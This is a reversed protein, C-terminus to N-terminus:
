LMKGVLGVIEEKKKESEEFIARAEADVKSTFVKDSCDKCNIQVNMYAGQVAAAICLSGVGADSVSAPNGKVAMESLLGYTDFATKMVELPVLIANKTAEDIAKLRKVKEEETGKPMRIAQLIGNFAKTDEDVLRLLNSKIQQGKEAWQSFEDWREDWGRKHASLNAVMTGLSAGLAGVYASISGGGPAPSESATENAFGELSMSVLKEGQQDELQYEIVKKRPDFPALDDLGLSKVAIHIIEEESIGLSREQKKLFHKGADLLVKKPVLGVIESGTIRMGRHIASEQCAEYATHLPTISINTLNMSIQAQSYEKIYWGIAKVSKCKGPVRIAEGKEDRLIEGTLTDGKRKIRGKERVDFAIANARRVSTTNLNINYAVLFDRVGIATTGARANFSAPGFDPKWQPDQLKKEMGEYEGARITALNQRDPASAAHEYLFVPIKLERGVREGLKKAYAVLDDMTIGSIPILPCVDTAGMRPHEGSHQAMDILESAKKIALFAADIVEDPAGVFTVVTRNTAMGPDVDLLKVGEVSEIEDTIQKIVSLDRGESFNPVCEILVPNTM